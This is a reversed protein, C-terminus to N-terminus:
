VLGPVDQHHIAPNYLVDRSCEALFPFSVPNKGLQLDIDDGLRAAQIMQQVVDDSLNVVFAQPLPATDPSCSGALELGGEPVKLTKM